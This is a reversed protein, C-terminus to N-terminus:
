RLSYTIIEQDFLLTPPFPFFLQPFRSWLINQLVAYKLHKEWDEGEGPSLAGTKKQPNMIVVRCCNMIVVYPVITSGDWEEVMSM